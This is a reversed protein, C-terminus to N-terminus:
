VDNTGRAMAVSGTRAIERIGFGQLESVLKELKEKSGTVELTVTEATADVVHAGFLHGLEIIESSNSATSNVKILALERAVTQESSLNVIHRVEVIKRLQEVLQEVGVESDDVVVTIRVVNPLESPGVTLTQMRARRHRLTGVIRDLAGHRDNMLIVLLHSCESGEPANSQGPRENPIQASTMVQM